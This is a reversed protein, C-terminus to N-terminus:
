PQGRRWRALPDDFDIPAVTKGRGITDGSLRDLGPQVRDGRDLGPKPAKPVPTLAAKKGRGAARDAADGLYSKLRDYGGAAQRLTDGGAAGTLFSDFGRAGEGYPRAQGYAGQLLAGRGAQSTLFSAGRGFDDVQSQLGATELEKPGAYPSRKERVDKVGQDVTTNFDREASDIAGRVADEQGSVPGAIRRAMDRGEQRNSAFDLYRQLNVFGTGGAQPQASPQAGAAGEVSTLGPAATGPASQAAAQQRREEDTLPVLYAM